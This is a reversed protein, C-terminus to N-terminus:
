DHTTWVNEGDTVIVINGHIDTRYIRVGHSILRTVVAGHPHGHGNDAGVSIVAIGPSVADLFVETTSTTSGHHGVHLVDASLNRGSAVMDRESAVEADGTFVFSIDGFVLRLSVSHDNINAYHNYVPAIITFVVDGVLFTEGAVPAKVNIDNNELADIFREFTRTNHAIQPMILTGIPMENVVAILGGIHDAHPHTAIVYTLERIGQNRIYELVRGGMPNDGGDILVAGEAAHILVADGQGVDIFHVHVYGEAINASGGFFGTIGDWIEIAADTVRNWWAPNSHFLFGGVGALLAIVSM